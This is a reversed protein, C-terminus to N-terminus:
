RKLLDSARVSVLYLQYLVRLPTEGYHLMSQKDSAGGLSLCFINVNIELIDRIKSIVTQGGKIPGRRKAGEGNQLNYHRGKEEQSWM